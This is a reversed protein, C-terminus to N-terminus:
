KSHEELFATLKSKPVAGLNTAVVKGQKFVLLAPISRINYEAPTKENKDVNMKLIKIKGAYEGAVEELVGALSRCPGCWEAWFDVMVPLDSHLVEQQFSDDFVESIKAM